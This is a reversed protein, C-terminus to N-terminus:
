SVISVGQQGVIDIGIVTNNTDSVFYIDSIYQFDSPNIQTELNGAIIPFGTVTTVDSAGWFVNAGSTIVAVRIGKILQKTSSSLQIATNATPLNLQGISSLIAM